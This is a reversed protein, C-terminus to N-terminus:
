LVESVTINGPWFHLIRPTTYNDAQSELAVDPLELVDESQLISTSGDPNYITATMTFPTKVSKVGQDNLLNEISTATLGNPTSVTNVLDKVLDVLGDNSPTAVNAPDRRIGLALDVFGPIFSKPLVDAGTVREADERCLSHIAQLEPNHLFTILYSFGIADENFVILADEFVSFRDPPKNVIFNYDGGDGIGFAGLGFGGSGFGRPAALPDGIPENTSPDIQQISVIKIFPTDTITFAARGPRVGRNVEDALVVKGGVDISIPNYKYSVNVTQESKLKYSIGAAAGSPAFNSLRLLIGFSPDGTIIESIIFTTNAPIGVVAQTITLEDGVRIFVLPKDDFVAGHAGDNFFFNGSSPPSEVIRGDARNLMEQGSTITQRHTPTGPDRTPVDYTTQYIDGALYDVTYDVGEVYEVAGIGAVTFPTADVPFLTEAANESDSIPSSLTLFKIQSDAGVTPSTLDFTTASGKTAVALGINVNIANIIEALSTHAPVVGAVKFQVPDRNDIQLKLWQHSSLNIGVSQSITSSAIQAATEIIDEKVIVSSNAISPTGVSPPFVPDTSSRAMMFHANRSTERTTDIVLPPTSFTGQTLNPTKLYVDTHAGIHINFEIDRQMEPDGMGITIIQQLFPFAQNLIATIGKDTELDRVGISKPIRNLLQTNTEAPQGGVAAFLNTVRVADPDNLIATIAGTAVNYQDGPAESQVPIDAFFLAGDSQLAMDSATISFDGSNFFNLSSSTFQATLAPFELAKATVYFVRVTTTSLQGADRTVYVNSAADDVDTSAFTAPTDPTPDLLMQRVSQGVRRKTMFDNLPQLMLEQPQVFLDYHATGQRTEFAPDAEALRDQIFTIVPLEM